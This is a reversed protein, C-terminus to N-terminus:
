AWFSQWVLSNSTNLSQLDTLCNQLVIVQDAVKSPDSTPSFQGSQSIWLRTSDVGAPGGSDFQESRIFSGLKSFDNATGRGLLDAINLVDGNGGPSASFDTITDTDPRGATGADRKLWVFTDKAGGGTYVQDGKRNIFWQNQDTGTPPQDGTTWFDTLKSGSDKQVVQYATTINKAGDTATLSVTYFGELLLNLKDEPLVVKQNVINLEHGLVSATVQSAGEVQADIQLPQGAITAIASGSANGFQKVIPALLDYRVSESAIPDRPAMLNGALDRILAQTTESLSVTVVGAANPNPDVVLSVATRDAHISLSNARAQGASVVFDALSLTNAIGEDFSLTYVIGAASESISVVQDANSDQWSRTFSRLKPATIDYRMSLASAGSFDNGALDKLTSLTKLGITLQGNGATGRTQAVVTYTQLDIQKFSGALFQGGGDIENIQLDDLSLARSPTRALKVTVTLGNAGEVQNLTQDGAQVAGLKQELADLNSTISAAWPSFFVSLEFSQTSTKGAPSRAVVEFTHVGEPLDAAPSWTWNGQDDVAASSVTGDKLRVQVQNGPLTKGNLIPKRVSTVTDNTGGTNSREDLTVSLPGADQLSSGSGSGGGGLAAAALGGAGLTGAGIGGAAAGGAAAGGAAAGGAAAGGVAGGVAGGAGFVGLQAGGLVQSIAAGDALAVIDDGLAATNPIFPYLLNDEALGAFTGPAVEYFNEVIVDPAEPKFEDLHILLDKGRRRTHLQQPARGSEVQNIEYRAAPEAAIRLSGGGQKLLHTIRTPGTVEPQAIADQTSEAIRAASIDRAATQVVIQYQTSM